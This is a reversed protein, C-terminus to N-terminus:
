AARDRAPPPLLSFRMERFLEGLIAEGGSSVVEAAWRFTPTTSRRGALGHPDHAGLLFIPEMLEADDLADRVAAPIWRVNSTVQDGEGLDGTHEILDTLRRPHGPETNACIADLNRIWRSTQCPDNRDDTARWRIVARAFVPALARLGERDLAGDFFRLATTIASLDRGARHWLTVASVALTARLRPADAPAELALQTEIEAAGTFHARAEDAHGAREAREAKFALEDMQQNRPDELLASM